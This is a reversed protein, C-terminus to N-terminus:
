YTADDLCSQTTDNSITAMIRRKHGEQQIHAELLLCKFGFCNSYHRGTDIEEPM